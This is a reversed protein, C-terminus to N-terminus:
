PQSSSKALVVNEFSEAVTCQIMPTVFDPLITPHQSKIEEQTVDKISKDIIDIFRDHEAKAEKEFEATYSQLATQVVYRIRTTLNDDVIASIYSKIQDLLKAYKDDQKFQSVDKELSSVRENFRFVSAFDLLDPVSTTTADIMEEDRIGEEEDVVGELNVNVDGYLEEYTEEEDVNEQENDSCENKELTRVMAEEM